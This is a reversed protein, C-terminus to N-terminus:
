VKFFMENFLKLNSVEDIEINLVAEITKNCKTFKSMAGYHIPNRRNKDQATLIQRYRDIIDKSYQEFLNFIRINFEEHRKISDADHFIQTSLHGHKIDM